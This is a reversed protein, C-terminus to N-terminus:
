FVGGGGFVSNSKQSKGFASGQKSTKFITNSKSIEKQPTAKKIITKRPKSKASSKGKSISRIAETIPKYRLDRTKARETRIKDKTEQFERQEKATALEAEVNIKNRLFKEREEQISERKFGFM